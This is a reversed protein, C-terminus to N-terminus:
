QYGKLLEHLRAPSSKTAVLLVFVILLWRVFVAIRARQCCDVIEHREEDLSDWPSLPVLNIVPCCGDLGRRCCLIGCGSGAVVLRLWCAFDESVVFTRLAAGATGKACGQCPGAEGWFCRNHCKV